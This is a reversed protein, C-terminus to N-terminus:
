EKDIRDVCDSFKLCFNRVLEKADEASRFSEAYVRKGEKFEEYSVYESMDENYDLCKISDSEIELTDIDIEYTYLTITDPSSSIKKEKEIYEKLWKSMKQRQEETFTGCFEIEVPEHDIM